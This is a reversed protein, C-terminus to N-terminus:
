SARAQEEEKRKKAQAKKHELVKAPDLNSLKAVEIEDKTLKIEEESSSDRQKEKGKSERPVSHAHKLYETLTEEDQKLAWAEMHLPIKDTNDEVLRQVNSKTQKKEMANLRAELRDANAKMAAFKGRLAPSLSSIEKEEPDDAAEEKDKGEGEGPKDTLKKLASMADDESADDALGLAKCIKTLLEGGADGGGDQLAKIAEIADELSADEGLGLAALIKKLADMNEVEITLTGLDLGSRASAAVLAPMDHSAPIACMAVNYLCSIRRSKKGYGFFPSIYRQTKEELRREGDPTLSLDVAWLEGDRLELKFWGRADPDYNKAEADLSLHELDLMRQVGHRRYHDMVMKAAQDDFLFNGKETENWGRKFIRFETPLKDPM